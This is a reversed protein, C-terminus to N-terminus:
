NLPIPRTVVWLMPGPVSSKSPINILISNCHLRQFFDNMANRWGMRQGAITGDRAKGKVRSGDIILTQEEGKNTGISIAM